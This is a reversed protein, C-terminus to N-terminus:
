LGYFSKSLFVHRLIQLVMEMKLMIDQFAELNPSSGFTPPPHMRCILSLFVHILLFCCTINCLFIIAYGQKNSFYSTQADEKMAPDLHVSAYSNGNLAPYVQLVFFGGILCRL